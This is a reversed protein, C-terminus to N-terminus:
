ESRPEPVPNQVTQDAKPPQPEQTAFWNRTARQADALQEPTMLEGVTERLKAAEDVGFTASINFWKHATVYDLMVSDGTMYRKGLLLQAQADGENAAKELMKIGDEVRETDNLYLLALATMAPRVGESAQQELWAEAEVDGNAAAFQAWPVARHPAMKGDLTGAAALRGLQIAANDGDNTELAQMYLAIATDTNQEVGEGAEYFGALAIMARGLGHQSAQAYWKIATATDKEVSMGAAYAYGLNAMAGSDGAEAASHLWRLGEATNQEVIEGRLYHTGLERQAVPLGNEAARRYWQVAEDTAQETGDGQELRLALRFQAPLHGNEAAKRLWTVAAKPDAETGMGAHFAQSLIYQAEVHDQEAAALFWNFAANKDPEVGAGSYYLQGLLFQADSGGLAAARSLLEGARKPSLDLAQDGSTDESFSEGSLHIRALLTMAEVQNQDAAKALWHMAGPIDRPGGRGELLIRGYRYNALATGEQEALYKLGDRASAFDGSQWAQEVQQMTPPDQDTPSSPTGDQASAAFTSLAFILCTAPWMMSFRFTPLCESYKKRM